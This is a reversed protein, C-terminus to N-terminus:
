HSFLYFFYQSSALWYYFCRLLGVEFHHYVTSLKIKLSLLDIFFFRWNLIILTCTYKAWGWDISTLSHHSVNIMAWRIKSEINITRWRRICTWWWWWSVLQHLWETTWKPDINRWKWREYNRQNSCKICRLFFFIFQNIDINNVISNGTGLSENCFKKEGHVLSFFQILTRIDARLENHTQTPCHHHVRFILKWLYRIITSNFYFQRLIISHLTISRKELYINALVMPFIIVKFWIYLLTFFVFVFVLPALM